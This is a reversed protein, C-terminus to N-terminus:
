ESQAARSCFGGLAPMQRPWYVNDTSACAADLMNAVLYKAMTLSHIPCSSDQIGISKAAACQLCHGHLGVSVM